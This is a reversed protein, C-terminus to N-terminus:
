VEGIVPHVAVLWEEYTMLNQEYWDEQETYDKLYQRYGAINQKEEDSLEAWYLPKSQYFDVYKEFYEARVARVEQEKVEQPKEPAYGKVYWSGNYAQEVEIEMMGISKYFETNTGLGVECQKTEKNTIKAYKIM